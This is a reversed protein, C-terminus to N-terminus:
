RPRRPRQKASVSRIVTPITGGKPFSPKAAKVALVILREIAPRELGSAGDLVVNRVVNGGGKLIRDPDRLTAGKLFCLTVHRPNLFLSLVAESPRDTPGYGFVLGAYNDYVFEVGGPLRSRLERRLVRAQRAIEPAYKALFAAIQKTTTASPVRAAAPM